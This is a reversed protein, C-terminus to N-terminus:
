IMCFYRHAIYLLKLLLGNEFNNNISKNYVSGNAIRFCNKDLFNNCFERDPDGHNSFNIVYNDKWICNDM